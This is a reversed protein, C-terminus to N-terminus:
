HGGPAGVGRGARMSALRADNVSLWRDLRRLLDGRRVTSIHMTSRRQPLSADLVLEGPEMKVVDRAIRNLVLADGYVGDARGVLAHRILTELSSDEVLMLEGKKLRDGWGEPIEGRRTALSRMRDPGRGAMRRPVLIGVVQETLPASYLFLRDGKIKHRLDPADPFVLDLAGDAAANLLLDPSAARYEITAGFSAAFADMLDRVFGKAENNEM